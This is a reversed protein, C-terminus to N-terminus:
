LIRTLDGDLIVPSMFEIEGTYSMQPIPNLFYIKKDLVHAFAIEILTNGGVYNEIDNKDKNMVLIAESNKIVKYYAKIVDHELKEWKDEVKVSGTVYKELNMPVKVTHCMEELKQKTDLMDKAFAVSGCIAIRM